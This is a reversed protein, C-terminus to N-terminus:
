AVREDRRFMGQGFLNETNGRNKSFIADLAGQCGFGNSFRCVTGACSSSDFQQYGTYRISQLYVVIALVNVLIILYESNRVSEDIAAFTACYGGRSEPLLKGFCLVYSGHAETGSQRETFNYQFLIYSWILLIIYDVQAAMLASYAHKLIQATRVGKSKM